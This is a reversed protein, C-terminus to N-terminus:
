LSVLTMKLHTQPVENPVGGGCINCRRRLFLCIGRPALTRSPLQLAMLTSPGPSERAMIGALLCGPSACGGRFAGAPTGSCPARSGPPTKRAQAIVPTAGPQGASGWVRIEPAGIDPACVCVCVRHFVSTIAEAVPFIAVEDPPQSLSSDVQLAPSGPKIGPNPLDGPPPCPKGAFVRDVSFAPLTCDMPNWLRIRSFPSLLSIVFGDGLSQFFWCFHVALQRQTANVYNTVFFTVRPVWQTWFASPLCGWSNSRGQARPGKRQTLKLPWGTM